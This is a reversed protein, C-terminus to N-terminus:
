VDGESPEPASQVKGFFGNFGHQTDERSSNCQIEIAENLVRALLHFLM